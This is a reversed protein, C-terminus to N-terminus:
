LMEKIKNIRGVKSQIDSGFIHTHKVLDENTAYIKLKKKNHSISSDIQVNIPFITDLLKLAGRNSIIMGFTGCTMGAPKYLQESITNNKNLSPINHLGLYVIDYEITSIEKLVQELKSDFNEAIQIDDELVLFPKTAKYCDQYILYHSLACGVAGATLTVGFKKPADSFAESIGIESIVNRDILRPDLNRGNVAFFKTLCQSLESSSFQSEINSQREKAGSLTIYIVSDFFNCLM